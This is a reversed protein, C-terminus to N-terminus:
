HTTLNGPSTSARSLRAERQRIATHIGSCRRSCYTRAYARRVLHTKGRRRAFSKHCNPCELQALPAPGPHHHRAHEPRRTLELNELRYDTKDENKHHVVEWSELPRGLHLSMVLRHAHIYGTSWANPHDPCYICPYGTSTSIRNWDPTVNM